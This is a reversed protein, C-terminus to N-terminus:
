SAPPAPLSKNMKNAGAGPRSTSRRSSPPQTLTHAVLQLNRKRYSGFTHGQGPGPEPRSYSHPTPTATPSRDPGPLRFSPHVSPARPGRGRHSLPIQAQAHSEGSAPDARGSEWRVPVGEMETEKPTTCTRESVRNATFRSLGRKPHPPPSGTLMHAPFCISTTKGEGSNGILYEEQRHPM